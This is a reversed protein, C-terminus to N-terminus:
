RTSPQAASRPAKAPRLRLGLDHTLHGALAAILLIAGAMELCEELAVALASAFGRGYREVVIGDLMEMGGAGILYVAVALGLRRRLMGPLRRMAPMVLVLLSAAVGLYVVFWPFHLVGTAHEALLRRLPANLREHLAVSEDVALFLLVAALLAWCRAIAPASAHSAWTAVTMLQAAMVLLLSSFFAPVGGERNLDFLAFAVAPLAPWGQRAALWQFVHGAVHLAVLATAVAWLAGTLRRWLAPAPRDAVAASAQLSVVAARM